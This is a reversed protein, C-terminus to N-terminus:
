LKGYTYTHPPALQVVKCMIQTNDYKGVRIYMDEYIYYVSRQTYRINSNLVGIDSEIINDQETQSRSWTYM